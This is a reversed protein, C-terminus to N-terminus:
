FLHNSYRSDPQAHVPDMHSGLSSQNIFHNTILQHTAKFNSCNKSLSTNSHDERKFTWVFVAM